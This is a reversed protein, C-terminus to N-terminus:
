EEFYGNEKAVALLAMDTLKIFGLKLEEKEPKLAAARM